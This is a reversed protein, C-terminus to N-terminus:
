SPEPLKPLTLSNNIVRESIKDFWLLIRVDPIGLGTGEIAASDLNDLKIDLIWKHRLKWNTFAFHEDMEAPDQSREAEQVERWWQDFQQANLFIPLDIHGPYQDLPSKFRERNPGIKEPEKWNQPKAM